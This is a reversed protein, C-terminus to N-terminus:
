FGFLPNGGGETVEDPSPVEISVDEDYDSLTVRLTLQGMSANGVETSMESLWLDDRDFLMDLVLSDGILGSPDLGAMGGLADMGSLQDAPITLRVAYCRGSGCDTDSLKEVEVGETDLFGGVGNLVGTPDSLESVPDGGTSTSKLWQPGTFPTKLYTDAGDTILEGNFGMATFSFHSQSAGIDVDGEVTTGDLTVESDSGPVTASGDVTIAIHMSKLQSTAEIGQTVIERPDEIAPGSGGCAALLMTAVALAPVFRRLM